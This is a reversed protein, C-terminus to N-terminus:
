CSINESGTFALSGVNTLNNGGTAQSTLEQGTFGTWNAFPWSDVNSADTLGASRSGRCTPPTGALESIEAGTLADNFVDVFFLDADLYDGFVGAGLGYGVYFDQTSSVDRITSRNLNLDFSTQQVGDIWIDMGNGASERVIAIHHLNGDNVTSSTRIYSRSGSDATEFMIKGSSLRVNYGDEGAPVHAKNIIAESAAGSTTKIWFSFSFDGTTFNHIAGGDAYDNVGDFAAINASIAAAEVVAVTPLIPSYYFFGNGSDQKSRRDFFYSGASLTTNNDWAGTNPDIDFSAADPGGVIEYIIPGAPM